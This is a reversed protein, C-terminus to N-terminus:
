PPPGMVIRCARLVGPRMKVWNKVPDLQTLEMMAECARKSGYEARLEKMLGEFDDAHVGYHGVFAAVRRLEPGTNIRSWLPSRDKLFDLAPSGDSKELATKLTGISAKLASAKRRVDAALNPCAKQVKTGKKCVEELEDMLSPVREFLSMDRINM